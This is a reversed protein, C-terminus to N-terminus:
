VQAINNAVRQVLSRLGRTRSNRKVESGSSKLEDINDRLKHIAELIQDVSKREMLVHNLMAVVENEHIREAEPCHFSAYDVDPVTLYSKKIDRFIPNQYLPENHATGCAVGEARLAEMFHNRHIGNWKASDYKFLYFFYGQKTIRPDRKLPSLGEIKELERAFYEGNQHRIETQEKFRSLQVLLVAGAFESMRWNGTPLYCTKEGRPTKMTRTLSFTDVDLAEEDYTIAGGEGCTLPKGMQFSFCAINGISGVKRGRWETGHAEASDEIVFLDHKNAIETIRDMDAPYGGYHVPLIARTRETIAAEVADPSIQYSEPDIDVFIPVAGSTIVSTATALFTVAPVIIEDGFGIDCARIALELATTGSSVARCYKTGVLKAFEKEVEAVRGEPNLRSCWRGSELVEILARKEAGDYIPWRRKIGKPVAPKGGNIALKAM